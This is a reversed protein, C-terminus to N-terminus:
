LTWSWPACNRWVSRLGRTISEPSSTPAAARDACNYGTRTDIVRGTELDVLQLRLPPPASTSLWDWLLRAAMDRSHVREVTTVGNREALTVTVRGDDARM